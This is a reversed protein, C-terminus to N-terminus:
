ETVKKNKKKEPHYFEDVTEGAPQHAQEWKEVYKKQSQTLEM